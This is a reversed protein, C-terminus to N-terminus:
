DPQVCGPPPKNKGALLLRAQAPTRCELLAQRVEPNIMRRAVQAIIILYDQYDESPTIMLFVFRVLPFNKDEFDVGDPCVGCCGTVGSFGPIAVHPFATECGVATPSVNERSMAKHLVFNRWQAPLQQQEVLSDVLLRLLEQRNRPHLNLRITEEWFVEELSFERPRGSLLMLSPHRPDRLLMEPISDHFHNLTRGYNPGGFIVLDQMESAAQIGEVVHAAVKTEVPTKLGLMRLQLHALRADEETRAPNPGGDKEPQVIRLLRLPIRLAKALESVIWVQPVTHLGGDSAFLIREAAQGAPWNVIMGPLNCRIILRLIAQMREHDQLWEAVIFSVPQETAAVRQEFAQFFLDNEAPDDTESASDTRRGPAVASTERPLRMVEMCGNRSRSLIEACAIAMQGTEEDTLLVLIRFRSNKGM